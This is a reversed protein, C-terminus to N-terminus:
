MAPPAASQRSILHWSLKPSSTKSGNIRKIINEALLNSKERRKHTLSTIQVSSLESLYSNDFSVVSINEPVKRQAHQLEKIFWYAIEDNHCIVATCDDKLCDAFDSLPGITQKKRLMSLRATDYGCLLEDSFPIQEDRLASLFGYCREIGQLDDMKFICGIKRHGLSVLYKGLYYGGGFDDEIISPFNQLNPCSGHFFLTPIGIEQLKEYCDKNVSPLATMCGEALIGLVPQKVFDKLYEREGSLRNDTVCVKMSFGHDALTSRIDTLLSPYIYESDSSVLVAVTNQGSRASFGAVYSGSGQRKKILQEEELMSLAKRATTRSINYKKCLEAETPLKFGGAPNEEIMSRLINALRIYKAPM